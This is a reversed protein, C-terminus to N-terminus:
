NVTCNGILDMIPTPTNVEFPHPSEVGFVHSHILMFTEVCCQKYHCIVPFSWIGLLLLRALSWQLAEM